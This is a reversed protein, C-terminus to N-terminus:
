KLSVLYATVDHINKDTYTALLDYHGQLPNHIVVPPKGNNLPYSHLNGDTDRLVLLFDDMHDLSGEAKTGDPLTVTATIPPVRVTSGGRGGGGSPMIWTQQLGKPDSVKSVFAKMDGAASHCSACKADFFNKGAAANGVVINPPASRIVDRGGVIFSHLYAAIDSIQADTLTLAPMGEDPRGNKVVEGIAEGKADNMVLASRLLNPGGEGGRADSGHCFGCNVSFIGKGREVTAPDAQSHQPYASRPPGAAGRGGGSPGAPPQAFLIVTSLASAILFERLCLSRVM